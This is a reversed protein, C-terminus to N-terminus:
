IRAPRYHRVGGRTAVIEDVFEDLCGPDEVVDYESTNIVLLPTDSYSFFYAGMATAFQDMVKLKIVRDAPKIAKRVRARLVERDATLYVVLEPRPLRETLLAHVKRYLALEEGTLTVHSFLADRAFVYDVVVGSSFLDPQALEVQQRYRALLCYLQAQFGFRAPDRAFDEFFPNDPAPDAVLRAGTRRALARAVASAGAGPPGDIAVYRRALPDSM